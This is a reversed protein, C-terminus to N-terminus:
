ASLAHRTQNLAVLILRKQRLFLRSSIHWENGSTGWSLAVEDSMTEPLVRGGWVRSFATLRAVLWLWRHIHNKSERDQEWHWGMRLREDGRGQRLEAIEIIRAAMLAAYGILHTEESMETPQRVFRELYRAWSNFSRFHWFDTAPGRVHRLDPITSYTSIWLEIFIHPFYPLAVM